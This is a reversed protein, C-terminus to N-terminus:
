KDTVKAFVINVDNVESNDEINITERLLDKDNVTASKMQYEKPKGFVVAKLLIEGTPVADLTFTGDPNVPAFRIPSRGFKITQEPLVILGEPIPESGHMIVKGTIRGGKIVQITLDDIDTGAMKVEFTQAVFKATIGLRIEDVKGNNTKVPLLTVTPDILVVYNGDPVNDLTWRGQEDTFIKSVFLPAGAALNNTGRIEIKTKVVPQNDTKMTVMGSIRHGVVSNEKNIRALDNVIKEQTQSVVSLSTALTLSVFWLGRYMKYIIDRNMM